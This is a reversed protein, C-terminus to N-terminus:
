LKQLCYFCGSLSIFHRHCMILLQKNIIILKFLCIGQKYREKTLHRSITFRQFYLLHKFM